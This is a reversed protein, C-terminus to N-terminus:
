TLIVVVVAAADRRWGCGSDYEHASAAATTSLLATHGLSEEAAASWVAACVTVM